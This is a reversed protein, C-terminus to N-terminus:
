PLPPGVKMRYFQQPLASPPTTWTFPMAPSNTLFITNWATLNSSSQVAYDPGAQGGIFFGIQGGLLGTVTVTPATLPNVVVSFSQTSSLAPTGNDMVVVTVPNTTGAQAVLPRWNFIGNSSVLTANTPGVPLSYTLTQAPLDADTANNTILLNVGVNITRSSIATLVPATNTTPFIIRLNVTNTYSFGSTDAVRFTFGGLANTTVAPTFQAIRGNGNTVVTGGVANFVAYAPGVNTFGRTYQTLDVIMATGNTCEYHPQALWNLYRDLETYGDGVLDANADSFEGAASYPNLGRM